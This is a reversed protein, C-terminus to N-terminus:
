ERMRARPQCAGASLLLGVTTEDGREAAEDRRRRAAAEDVHAVAEAAEREMHRRRRTARVGDERQELSPGVGVDPRAGVAGFAGRQLRGDADAHGFERIVSVAVEYHFEARTQHRQEGGTAVLKPAGLEDYLYDNVSAGGVDDVYMLVYFMAASQWWEITDDGGDILLLKLVEPTAEGNQVLNELWELMDTAELDDHEDEWKDVLKGRFTEDTLRHDAVVRARELGDDAHDVLTHDEARHVGHDDDVAGLDVDGEDLHRGAVPALGGLVETVVHLRPPAPVVLLVDGM